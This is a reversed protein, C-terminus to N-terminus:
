AQWSTLMQYQRRQGSASSVATVTQAGGLQGAETWRTLHPLCLIFMCLIHRHLTDKLGTQRQLRHTLIHRCCCRCCCGATVRASAAASLQVCGCQSCHGIRSARLSQLAEHRPPQPQLILDVGENVTCSSFVCVLRHPSHSCCQVAATCMFGVNATTCV